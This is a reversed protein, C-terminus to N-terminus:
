PSYHLFEVATSTCILPMNHVHKFDDRLQLHVKIKFSCDSYVQTMSLRLYEVCQMWDLYRLLIHQPAHHVYTCGMCTHVPYMVVRATAEHEPDLSAVVDMCLVVTAITYSPM